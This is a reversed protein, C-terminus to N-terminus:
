GHRAHGDPTESAVFGLGRITHILKTPSGQDVKRRLRVLHVDIVNDLMTGREIQQWIDRALMERSVVQGAHRLLYALLDFEKPTLSLDRDGRSARREIQDVVLDGLTLRADARGGRRSLARLRALLEPLAFPKVLYDDAGKDLGRVRDNLSDLATLLLVPTRVGRQRLTALVELGDMGPLMVDLVMLDFPERRALELGEEGSGAVAVAYGAQELGESLARAVKRDDEVVLVREQNSM